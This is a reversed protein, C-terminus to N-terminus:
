TGMVDVTLWANTAKLLEEDERGKLGYCVSCNSVERMLLKVLGLLDM